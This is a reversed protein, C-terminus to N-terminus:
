VIRHPDLGKSSLLYMMEDTFLDSNISHIVINVDFGQARHNSNNVLICQFKFGVDYVNCEPLCADDFDIFSALVLAVERIVNGIREGPAYTSPPIAEKDAPAM